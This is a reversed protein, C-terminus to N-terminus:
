ARRRRRFEFAQAHAVSMAQAAQMIWRVAEAVDHPLTARLSRGLRRRGDGFEACIEVDIYALGSEPCCRVYQVRLLHESVVCAAAAAHDLVAPLRAADRQLMPSRLKLAVLRGFHRDWASWVRMIPSRGIPEHLLYRRPGLHDPGGRTHRHRLRM